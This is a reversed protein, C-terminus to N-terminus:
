HSIWVVTEGGGWDLVRGASVKLEEAVVVVFMAQKQHYRGPSCISQLLEGALYELGRNSCHRSCIASSESPSGRAVYDM